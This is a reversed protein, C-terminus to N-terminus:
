LGDVWSRSHRTLEDRETIEDLGVECGRAAYDNDRIAELLFDYGQEKQMKPKHWGETDPESLRFDSVVVNFENVKDKEIISKAEDSSTAVAYGIARDDLTTLVSALEDPKDDLFLVKWPKKGSVMEQIDDEDAPLYSTFNEEQLVTEILEISQEDNPDYLAIIRKYEKIIEPYSGVDKLLEAEYNEFRLPVKDWYPNTADGMVDMDHCRFYLLVAKKLWENVKWADAIPEAVRAQGSELLAIVHYLDPKLLDISNANLQARGDFAAEIRQQLQATM